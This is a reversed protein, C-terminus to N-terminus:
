GKFSVRAQYLLLVLRRGIPPGVTSNTPQPLGELDKQGILVKKKAVKLRPHLFIGLLDLHLRLMMKMGVLDKFSAFM